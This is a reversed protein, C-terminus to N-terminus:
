NDGISCLLAFSISLCTQIINAADFANFAEGQMGGDTNTHLRTLPLM